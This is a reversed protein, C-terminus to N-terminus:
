GEQRMERLQERLRENEAEVAARAAQSEALATQVEVIGLMWEGSVPDYLGPRNGELLCVDLGLAPSYGRTIGSEDERVDLPEYVGDVLREGVLGPSFMDGMPDLRWYERVGLRAYIVRKEVADYRWTSPGAIEMVFDPVKGGEDWILWSLRPHNGNAGFVVLVDPTVRTDNRGRQYYVFMNGAVYVDPREGFRYRLMGFMDHMATYQLDNDAVPEDDESPYYVGDGDIEQSAGSIYTEVQRTTM